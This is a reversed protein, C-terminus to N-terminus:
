ETEIEVEEGTPTEYEVEDDDACGLALTSVFALAFLAAILKKANKM